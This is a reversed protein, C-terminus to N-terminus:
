GELVPIVKEVVGKPTPVLITTIKVKRNHWKSTDPGLKKIFPAAYLRSLLATKVTGNLDIRLRLKRGYRTDVFDVDTITGTKDKDDLSILPSLGQEVWSLLDQQDVPM